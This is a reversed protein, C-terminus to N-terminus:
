KAEDKTWHCGCPYFVAEIVSEYGRGYVSRIPVFGAAPKHCVRCFDNDSM